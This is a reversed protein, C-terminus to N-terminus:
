LFVFRELFARDRILHREAVEKFNDTQRDAISDTLIRYLCDGMILEKLKVKSFGPVRDHIADVYQAVFPWVGDYPLDLLAKAVDWTPYDFYSREFDNFIMEGKENRHINGRHLDGHTLIMPLGEYDEPPVTSLFESIERPNWLERVLEEYKEIRIQGRTRRDNVYVGERFFDPFNNYGLSTRHFGVIDDLAESVPVDELMGEFQTVIYDKGSRVLRPVRLLDCKNFFTLVEREREIIDRMNFEHPNYKKLFFMPKGNELIVFNNNKSHKNFPVIEVGKPLELKKKCGGKEM